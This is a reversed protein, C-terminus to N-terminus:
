ILTKMLNVFLFFLKKELCIVSQLYEKQSYKELIGFCVGCGMSQSSNSELKRKNSIAEVFWYNASTEPLAFVTFNFLRKVCTMCLSDIINLILEKEKEM